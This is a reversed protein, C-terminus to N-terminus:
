ESRFEPIEMVTTRPVAQIYIIGNHPQDMEGKFFLYEFVEDAIEQAVTVSFVDKERQEGVGRDQIKGSRGVGRAHSFNANHINYEQSLGQVLLVGIGKPVICVIQKANDMLNKM